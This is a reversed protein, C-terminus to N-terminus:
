DLPAVFRANSYDKAPGAALWALETHVPPVSPCTRRRIPHRQKWGAAAAHALYHNAHPAIVRVPRRLDNRTRDSFFLDMVLRRGSGEEPFLHRGEEIPRVVASVFRVRNQLGCDRM